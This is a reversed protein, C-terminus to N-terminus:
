MIKSSDTVFHFITFSTSFKLYFFFFLPHLFHGCLYKVENEGVEKFCLIM